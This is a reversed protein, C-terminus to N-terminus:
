ASVPMCANLQQRFVARTEEIVSEKGKEVGLKNIVLKIAAVNIKLDTGKSLDDPMMVLENREKGLEKDGVITGLIIDNLLYCALITTKADHYNPHIQELFENKSTLGSFYNYLSRLISYTEKSIEKPLREKVALSVPSSRM